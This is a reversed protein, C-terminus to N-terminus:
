GGNLGFELADLLSVRWLSINANRQLSDYAEVIVDNLRLTRRSHVSPYTLADDADDYSLMSTESSYKAAIIDRLSLQM